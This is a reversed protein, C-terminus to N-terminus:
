AASVSARWPDVDHVTALWCAEYRQLPGVVRGRVWDRRWETRAQALEYPCVTHGCPTECISPCTM